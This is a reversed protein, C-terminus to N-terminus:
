EAIVTPFVPGSFQPPIFFFRSTLSESVSQGGLLCGQSPLSVYAVRESLRFRLSRFNLLRGFSRWAKSVFDFLRPTGSPANGRPSVM